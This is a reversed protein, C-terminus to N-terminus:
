WAVGRANHSSDGASSSIPLCSLVFTGSDCFVLKNGFLLVHILELVLVSCEFLFLLPVIILMMSSSGKGIDLLASFYPDCRIVFWNTTSNNGGSLGVIIYLQFM